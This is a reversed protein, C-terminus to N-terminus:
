FPLEDDDLQEGFGADDNFPSHSGGGSAPPNPLPAGAYDGGDQGVRNLFEVEDAIIETIYRRVGSKDEYDRNQISGMVGVKSGKKLYRGCNEGLGRWAVINFFDTQKEGSQSTFRRNVAISFTCVAIGSNTTRLEPDRTLNGILFAKNM